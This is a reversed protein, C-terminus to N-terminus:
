TIRELIKSFVSLFSFLRYNPVNEADGSKFLRTANAINLMNLCTGQQFSIKFILFLIDKIKHYTDLVINSDISNIGAAKNFKLSEFATEFEETALDSDSIIGNFSMLYETYRTSFFLLQIWYCNSRCFIIVRKKIIKLAKSFTNNKKKTKGTIKKM